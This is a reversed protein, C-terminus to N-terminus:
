ALAKEVPVYEYGLDEAVAKYTVKGDWVNLGEALHPNARMAGKWGLDAIQLAHPLTVNNLAYTSTRAVAGPMNAVCYHVIDDVVYTPDAHTTPKSTEFCGGQDIAVDVLVAGPKMMGFQDRRVLKPAEAGPILVAGIVMDAETLHEALLGASSYGTNFTDGFVDDLYRLRPLSRDLVTVNAGMGAAIRAAHTGVVGGGIVVVRTSTKM